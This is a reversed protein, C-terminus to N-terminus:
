KGQVILRPGASKEAYMARDAEAMLEGLAVPHEPDFRAAGVSISLEYRPENANARDLNTRLRHLLMELNRDSAEPALVAFEDGSLRAVIDSDRFSEELVDAARVLALDGERHGLSDNIEKLGDVDCFLLLLSQGNRRAVKLQHTAAAFFGRRNYLCTLDDTLALYRLEREILVHKVACWVAPHVAVRVAEADAAGSKLDRSIRDVEQVINALEKDSVLMASSLVAEIDREPATARKRAPLAEHHDLAADPSCIRLGATNQGKGNRAQGGNASM